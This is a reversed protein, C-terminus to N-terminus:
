EYEGLTAKLIFKSINESLLDPMARAIKEDPWDWWCIDLLQKIIDADFRYKLMKAPMGVAVGYAPVDKTVIARSGIVAGDGITVGAMIVAELGIWVDSGIKVSGNSKPHGTIYSFQNWNINFPYTTVWDSRHEAGLLIQVGPGISTFSGVELDDVGMFDRVNLNGYTERGFKFQPYRKSLNLEKRIGIKKMVSIVFNRFMKKRLTM